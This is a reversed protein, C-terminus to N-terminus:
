ASYRQIYLRWAATQRISDGYALMQDDYALGNEPLTSCDESYRNVSTHEPDVVHARSKPLLSIPAGRAGMQIMDAVRVASRSTVGPPEAQSRRQLNAQTTMLEGAASYSSHHGTFKYSLFTLAGAGKKELLVQRLTRHLRPVIFERPSTALVYEFPSAMLQYACDAVAEDQEQVPDRLLRVSIRADMTAHQLETLYALGASSNQVYFVYHGVGVVDHFAIFEALARPYFSVDGRHGPTVCLALSGALKAAPRVRTPQLWESSQAGMYVLSVYQPLPYSAM